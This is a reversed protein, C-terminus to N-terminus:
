ISKKRNRKMRARDRYYEKLHADGCKPCRKQNFALPNAVFIKGCDMCVKKIGGKGENGSWRRNYCDRCIGSQIRAIGCDPCHYVKKTGVIEAYQYGLNRMDTITAVPENEEDIFNVFVNLNDIRKAPSTLGMRAFKGYLMNREVNNYRGANAQKFIESAYDNVWGGSSRRAIGYKAFILLSFLVQRESEDDLQAITDLEKQTVPIGECLFPSHDKQEKLIGRIKNEWGPIDKHCPPFHAILYDTMAEEKSKQDKEHTNLYRAYISLEFKVQKGTFITNGDLVDEVHKVEDFYYNM